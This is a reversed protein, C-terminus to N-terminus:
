KLRAAVVKHMRAYCVTAVTLVLIVIPSVFGELLKPELGPFLAVTLRFLLYLVLSIVVFKSAFWLTAKLIERSMRLVLIEKDDDDLEASALMRMGELSRSIIALADKGLRLLMFLEFFVICFMLLPIYIM